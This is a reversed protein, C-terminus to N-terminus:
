NRLLFARAKKKGSSWPKIKLIFVWLKEDRSSSPCISYVPLNESKRSKRLFTKRSEVRGV